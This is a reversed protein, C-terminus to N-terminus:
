QSVVGDNEGQAARVGDVDTEPLLVNGSRLSLM